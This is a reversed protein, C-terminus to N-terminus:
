RHNGVRTASIQKLLLAYIGITIEKAFVKLPLCIARKRHSMLKSRRQSMMRNLQESLIAVEELRGTGQSSQALNVERGFM